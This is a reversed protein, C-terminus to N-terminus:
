GLVSVQITTNLIICSDLYFCYLFGRWFYKIKELFNTKNQKTQPYALELVSRYFSWKQSANSETIKASISVAITDGSCYQRYEFSKSNTRKGMKKKTEKNKKRDILGEKRGKKRNKKWRVNIKAPFGNLMLFFYRYNDIILPRKMMCQCKAFLSHKPIRCKDSFVSGLLNVVM